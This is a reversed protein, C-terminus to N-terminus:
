RREQCYSRQHSLRYLTQGGHRLGPNWEQTPFIGQLLFHCDVGSSKGPFDWVCSGSSAVTWPTVFLRVRSLSKVKWKWKPSLKGPPDSPSADARWAPNSEQTPFIEQLLFHCDVGASKGPFDWVSSGSLSPDCLTPCSQAVSSFQVSHTNLFFFEHSNEKMVYFAWLIIFIILYKLLCINEKIIEMTIWYKLFLVTVGFLKKSAFYQTWWFKIQELQVLNESKANQRLERM